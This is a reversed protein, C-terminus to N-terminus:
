AGPNEELCYGKDRFLALCASVVDADYLLGKNREIEELAAGIGLAPRYPRHSAMAEVVDAVAIIRSELLMAEGRLGRPYGSGDMREHHELIIRAIPWPFAIDKLIDHAAQPHIKILEYELKSLRTPKSLIAAPVAIIGLDHIAAAM